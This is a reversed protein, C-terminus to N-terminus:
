RERSHLFAIHSYNVPSDPPAGSQGTLWRDAAFDVPLAHCSWRDSPPVPSDPTCRITDPAGVPRSSCRDVTSSNSPFRPGSLSCYSDPPEGSQGTRWEVFPLFQRGLNDGVAVLQRPAIFPTGLRMSSVGLCESLM